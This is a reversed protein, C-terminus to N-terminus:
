HWSQSYTTPQLFCGSCPSPLPPSALPPPSSGTENVKGTRWAAAPSKGTGRHQPFTPRRSEEEEERGTRGKRSEEGGQNRSLFSCRCNRSFFLPDTPAKNRNKKEKRFITVPTEERDSFCECRYCVSSLCFLNRVKKKEQKAGRGPLSSLIFSQKLLMEARVLWLAEFAQLSRLPLM